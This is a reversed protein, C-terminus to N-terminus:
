NKNLFNIGKQTIKFHYVNGDEIPEFYGLDVFEFMIRYVDDIHCNKRHCFTTLYQFRFQQNPKIYNNNLWEILEQKITEFNKEM